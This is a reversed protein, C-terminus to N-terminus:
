ASRPYAFNHAGFRHTACLFPPLAHSDFGGAVRMVRRGVTKFVAAAVLRAPVEAYRDKYPVDAFFAIARKRASTTSHSHGDGTSLLHPRAGWSARTEATPNGMCRSARRPATPGVNACWPCPFGGDRPPAAVSNRGPAPAIGYGRPRFRAIRSAAIQRRTLRHDRGVDKTLCSAM